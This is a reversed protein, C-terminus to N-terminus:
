SSRRDLTSTVSSTDYGAIALGLGHRRVEAQSSRHGVHVGPRPLHAGHRLPHVRQDEQPRERRGEAAEGAASLREGLLQFIISASIYPMIGLGFITSQSLNGGSFMSVFGLVQGLAAQRSSCRRPWAEGPRDIPLPVHYGIATSPWSAALTILIKQRLEPIKFITILKNVASGGASPM